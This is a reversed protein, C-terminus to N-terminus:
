AGQHLRIRALELVVFGPRVPEPHHVRQHPTDTREAAGLDSLKGCHQGLEHAVQLTAHVSDRHRRLGAFCKEIRQHDRVGGGDVADSAGVTKIAAEAADWCEGRDIKSNVKTKLWTVINGGEAATIDKAM